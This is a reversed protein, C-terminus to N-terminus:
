ERQKRLYVDRGQIGPTKNSPSLVEIVTVIRKNEGRGTYIELYSERFEDDPIWDMAVTKAFYPDPLSAQLAEASHTVLQDHLMPFHDPHELFPDMGPFPSPM